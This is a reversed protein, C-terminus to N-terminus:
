PQRWQRWLRPLSKTIALRQTCGKYRPKCRRLPIKSGPQLRTWASVTQDGLTLTGLTLGQQRAIEDLEAIAQKSADTHSRQAVFVWDNAPLASAKRWLQSRVGSEERKGTQPVLGLAYEGNVWSFIDKSLNIKWRTQLDQLPQNILKSVTDYGKLGNALGSWARDLNIGSASFPSSAPIYQLAAVPKSLSPSISTEKRDGSLVATDAMLGQRDLELAIAMTQYQSAIAQVTPSQLTDKPSKAQKDPTVSNELWGALQPLSVFTLGIRPQTLTELAQQYFSATSLNLEAAQVNTIADRLVKPHNAFLVFQDGVVASALSSTPSSPKKQSREGSEAGRVKDESYILKVGQYQEFVLDAGAIAQKQWFVQLFERSREPDQTAIALLYGPQNGNARDRDIDLSTIALTLEDGLWPQVDREYELGTNALLSQKVRALEARARRREGPRTAVQRFAELRDPNVLLSIMAPAQKPVFIAASPTRDQGGKLLNLPSQALIWYVGGGGILLLVAVVAILGYFFSRLKM